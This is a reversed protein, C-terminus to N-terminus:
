RCRQAIAWNNGFSVAFHRIATRHIRLALTAWHRMTQALLAAFVNACSTNTCDFGLFTPNLRNAVQM